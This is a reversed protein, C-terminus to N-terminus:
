FSVENVEKGRQFNMTQMKGKYAINVINMQSAFENLLITNKVQISNISSVGSAEYYVWVSEGNVQGGTFTLKLPAGNVSASVKSSVYSKAANEFGSGKPDMKLASSLDSTNMKTTFKLVGNAENYDVKTMSSHFEVFSLMFALVTFVGFIGLLKKMKLYKNM